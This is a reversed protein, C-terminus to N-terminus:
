YNYNTPYDNGTGPGYADAPSYDSYPNSPDYTGPTYNYSTSTGPLAGGSGIGRGGGGGGGGGGSLFPLLAGFIKGFIGAQNQSQQTQWEKVRQALEQQRLSLNGQGLYQDLTLRGAGLQGETMARYEAVGLQGSQVLDDLTLKAAGLSAQLGLNQQNLSQAQAAQRNGQEAGVVQGYLGAGAQEASTGATAGALGLQGAAGAAAQRAAPAIAAIQGTKQRSLEATALDKAGGRLPGAELSKGAGKYVESVAEGEPAVAETIAAHDGGLLRQYYALAQQYAPSGVNYLNSGQGSILRALGSVSQLAAAEQPTRQGFAAINAWNPTMFQSVNPTVGWPGRPQYPTLTFPAPPVTGYPSANPNYGAGPWGTGSGNTSDREKGQGSAM